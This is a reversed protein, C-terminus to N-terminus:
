SGAWTVFLCRVQYVFVGFAYIDAPLSPAGTSGEGKPIHALREPAWSRTYGGAVGATASLSGADGHEVVTLSFGSLRARDNEDILVNNQCDVLLLAPVHIPLPPTRL